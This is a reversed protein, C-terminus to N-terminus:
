GCPPSLYGIGTYIRYTDNASLRRPWICASSTARSLRSEVRICRLGHAYLKAHLLLHRLRALSVNFMREPTESRSFFFSSFVFVFFILIFLFYSVDACLLDTHIHIYTYIYSLAMCSHLIHSLSLLTYRLLASRPPVLCACFCSSVILKRM